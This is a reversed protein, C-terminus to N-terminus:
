LCKERKFSMEREKDREQVVHRERSLCIDRGFSMERGICTHFVHMSLRISLYREKYRMQFVDRERLLCKERKFSMERGICTNFTMYQFVDRGRSRKFSMAREQVVNRERSLCRERKFAM